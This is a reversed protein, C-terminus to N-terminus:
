RSRVLQELRKMRNSMRRSIAAFRAPHTIETRDSHAIKLADAAEADALYADILEPLPDVPEKASLWDDLSMGNKAARRSEYEIQSPKLAKKKAAVIPAIPTPEYVRLRRNNPRQSFDFGELASPDPAFVIQDERGPKPTIDVLMGHQDEWVAHYEATLYLGPYEWVCWGYVIAGGDNQVKQEVGFSCYGYLGYDDAQVQVFRPESAGVSKCLAWVHSGIEGPTTEPNKFAAERDIAETSLAKMESFNLAM